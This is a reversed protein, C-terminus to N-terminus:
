LPLDIHRATDPNVLASHCLLLSLQTLALMNRLLLSSCLCLWQALMMEVAVWFIYTLGRDCMFGGYEHLVNGEGRCKDLFPPVECVCFLNGDKEFEDQSRIEMELFAGFMSQCQTDKARPSAGLM